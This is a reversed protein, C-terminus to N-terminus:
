EKIIKRCAVTNYNMLNVLYMGSALKGIDVQTKKDSLQQRMLEQGNMSLIRMTIDGTIRSLEITVRQRAPVPYVDWYMISGPIDRSLLPNFTWIDPFYHRKNWGTGMYGVNGITFSIGSLRLPAPPSPVQVWSAKGPNYKWFDIYLAAYDDGTGVYGENGVVFSVMGVRPTAPFDPVSSWKNTKPNYSWFDKKPTASDSLGTGLYGDDNIAFSVAGMRKSGPFDAKQQWTDTSPSYRWFDFLYNEALNYTGTGIYIVSDGIVFGRANYRGKGPFNAKKLWNNTNPDYEWVDNHCISFSDIGFFVYIKGKVSYATAGNRAEAPFNMKKTWTAFVTDYEWFDNVYVNRYIQGLGVYGKGNASCGVASVRGYDYMSTTQVWQANVTTFAFFAVLLLCLKKMKNSLIIMCYDLSLIRQYKKLKV